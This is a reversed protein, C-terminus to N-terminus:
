QATYPTTSYTQWFYTPLTASFGTDISFQVNPLYVLSYTPNEYLPVIAQDDMLTKEAAQLVLLRKAKDFTQSAQTLQDDFTKSTYFPMDQFFNIDDSADAIGSSLSISFLDTKGGLAIGAYTNTDSEPDLQLTIGIAKFDNQLSEAAKQNATYYTYKATFGNPYGAAALAAKAKAVDYTPAKLAPNYGPIGNALPQSAPDGGEVTIANMYAKLNVAQAIAQRVKLNSLPSKTNQSNFVLM